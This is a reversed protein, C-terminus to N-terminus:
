PQDRRCGSCYSEEPSIEGAALVTVRKLASREQLWYLLERVSERVRKKQIVRIELENGGACYWVWTEM